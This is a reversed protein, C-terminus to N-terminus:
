AVSGAKRTPAKNKAAILQLMMEVAKQAFV